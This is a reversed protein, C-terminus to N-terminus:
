REGGAGDPDRAPGTEGGAPERRRAGGIRRLWKWADIVPDAVLLSALMMTRAFFFAVVLLFLVIMAYAVWTGLPSASEM